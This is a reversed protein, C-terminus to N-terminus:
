RSTCIATTTAVPTREDGDGSPITHVAAVNPTISASAAPLSRV